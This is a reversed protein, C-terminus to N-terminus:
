RAISLPCLPAVAGIPGYDAEIHEYIPKGVLFTYIEDAKRALDVDAFRGPYLIKGIAYADALATGINTTYFNFPLLRYVRRNKFASLATYYATKRRFDEAVLQYGGGDIFIVAPDLDLLVEKDVFLHSGLKSEVSVALNRAHVWDFPIYVKDTSELGQTGRYGIGGVYVGPKEEAAISRTRGQLDRRLSEIYDIVAQARTECDLVSGAIKLADYVATDFTAFAGYSLVVVPISLIKQVEDALSADMYTVFIMQPRVALLAELDPKKNISAPGGPGCRPLLALEPFAYRYPRAGPQQKEMDEIGVVKGTAQLYVILRLAGPGLCVVREPVASWEVQRGAQDTVTGADATQSLLIVILVFGCVLIKKLM